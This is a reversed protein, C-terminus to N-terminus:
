VGRAAVMADAIAYARRADQTSQAAFDGVYHGAHYRGRLIAQMASMAFRDRLEVPSPVMIVESPPVAPTIPTAEKAM